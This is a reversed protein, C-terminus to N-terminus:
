ICRNVENLITAFLQGLHLPLHQAVLELAAVAVDQRQGRLDRLQLLPDLQFCFLTLLDNLSQSCINAILQVLIPCGHLGVHMLQGLLDVGERTEDICFLVLALICVLHEVVLDLIKAIGEISVSCVSALLGVLMESHQALARNAEIRLPMRQLGHLLPVHQIQLIDSRLKCLSGPLDRGKGILLELQKTQGILLECALQLSQFTVCVPFQCFNLCAILLGHLVDTCCLSVAM